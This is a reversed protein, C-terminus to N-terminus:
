WGAERRWEVHRDTDQHRSVVDAVEEGVRQAIQGGCACPEVRIVQSYGRLLTAESLGRPRLDELAELEPLPPRFPVVAVLTV